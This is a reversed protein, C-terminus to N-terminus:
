FIRGEKAILSPNTTVGCIVGMDNAKKIDAVNATDIFFKMSLDEKFYIEKRENWLSFGSGQTYFACCCPMSVWIDNSYVSIWIKEIRKEECMKLIEEVTKIGDSYITHMHLDIM